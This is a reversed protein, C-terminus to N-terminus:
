GNAVPGGSNNGVLANVVRQAGRGDVAACGETLAPDGAAIRRMVQRVASALDSRLNAGADVRPMGWRAAMEAAFARQNDAVVVAVFSRRLAALEYLTGGAASVAFSCVQVWGALESANVGDLWVSATFRKLAVAAAGAPERVGHRVVVPTLRCADVDALAELVTATLDAGDTGGLMVLVPLAGEPFAHPPAVPEFLAPRLLAYGEGLLTRVGAAYPSVSLGLRPNLVVDAADLRRLGMDDIVLMRGHLDARWRGLDEDTSEYHDVVLLDCSQVVERGADLFPYTHVFPVRLEEPVDSLDSTSWLACTWGRRNLEDALAGSRVLHGWGSAGGFELRFLARRRDGATQKEVM